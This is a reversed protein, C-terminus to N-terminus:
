MKQSSFIYSDFIGHKQDSYQSLHITTNFGISELLEFIDIGFTRYAIIEGRFPDRHYQVPVLYKDEKDSTDVLVLTQRNFLFPVTFIHYGKKRLVRYIEEFGKIHDRVHEFVDETIVIDFFDNPFKLNQLDQCFIRDEIKTGPEINPYLESCIYFEYDKLYKSFSDNISTNYIQIDRNQKPIDAISSLYKFYIDIIMKAVHRKRSTSLCFPCVMNNRACYVDTCLFLTINGCINCKGVSHYKYNKIM